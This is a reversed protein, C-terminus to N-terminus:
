ISNKTTPYKAGFLWHALFPSLRIINSILLSAAVIILAILLSVAAEIIPMPHDTFVTTVKGLQRPLLFYHILYVDLTRRGIYQLARGVPREKSFAAQNNRFFSFLIVMGTFTLMFETVTIGVTFYKRFVNVLFYFLICCTLLWSQNLSKEVLPFHQKVLTGMVFFIFYKWLLMSWANQVSRSIPIVEHFPSQWIYYMLAGLILLVWHGWKGRIFFRVAAYFVYYELLVFTFWYGAKAPAMVNYLFPRNCVYIYALFFVFPSILQVPIKKRFFKIIQKGNWVVSEKYLVFGSIFFFMPMRVQVLFDQISIGKGCVHWCFQSVHYFVVLIMTFGRLADIYQIREHKGALPTMDPNQHNLKNLNM